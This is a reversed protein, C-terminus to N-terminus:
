YGREEVEFRVKRAETETETETWSERAGAATQDEPRVLM